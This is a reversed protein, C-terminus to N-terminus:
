SVQNRLEDIDSSFTLTEEESRGREYNRLIERRREEVMYKELLSRLEIKEDPSLQKVEEVVDSFHKKM